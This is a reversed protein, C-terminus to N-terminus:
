GLLDYLINAFKKPIIHGLLIVTKSLSSEVPILIKKLIKIKVSKIKIEPVM